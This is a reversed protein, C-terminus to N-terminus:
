RTLNYSEDILKFIIDKELTNDLPLTIWKEKNMHYAPYAKKEAILIEHVQPSCKINIVDILDDSDLGLHKKKIRMILGYWKRNGSHRLVAYEPYKAWPYDPVTGYQERVYKLLDDIIM